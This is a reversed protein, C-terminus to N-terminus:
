SADAAASKQAEPRRNRTTDDEQQEQPSAADCKPRHAAVLAELTAYFAEDTAADRAAQARAAAESLPAGDASWARAEVLQGREYRLRTRPKGSAYWSRKEGHLRDEVYAAESRRPADANPAPPPYWLAITGTKRDDDYPVVAIRSGRESWFVFTGTRHGRAFAGAVRLRGDAARLTYAGNPEGERCAGEAVLPEAARAAAPFAALLVLLAGAGRASALPAPGVM